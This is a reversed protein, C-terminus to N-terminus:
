ADLSSSAAGRLLSLQRHATQVEPHLRALQEATVNPLRCRVVLTADSVQRTVGFRELRRLARAIACHNGTTSGLGLMAALHEM